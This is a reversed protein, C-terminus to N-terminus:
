GLGKKTGLVVRFERRYVLWSFTRGETAKSVYVLFIGFPFMLGATPTFWIAKHLSSSRVGAQTRLLLNSHYFVMVRLEDYCHPLNIFGKITSLTPYM